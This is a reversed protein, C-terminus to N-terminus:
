RSVITLFHFYGNLHSYAIFFIREKGSSGGLQWTKPMQKKAKPSNKTQVPITLISPHGHHFLCARGHPSRWLALWLICDAKRMTM